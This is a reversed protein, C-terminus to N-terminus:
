DLEVLPHMGKLRIIKVFLNGHEDTRNTLSAQAKTSSYSAFNQEPRSDQEYFFFVSANEQDEMRTFTGIRWKGSKTPFAFIPLPPEEFMIKYTAVKVLGLLDKVQVSLFKPGSFVVGKLGREFPKPFKLIEIVPAYALSANLPNDVFSVEETAAVTRYGLYQKADSSKAYYFVPSGFFFDLQTSLTYGSEAKTAFIPLPVRELSCTLRALENLSELEIFTAPKLNKDKAM